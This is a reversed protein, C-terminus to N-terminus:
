HHSCTGSACTVGPCVVLPAGGSQQCTAVAGPQQCLTPIDLHALLCACTYTEACQCAIPTATGSCGIIGGGDTGVPNWMTYAFGEPTFFPGGNNTISAPCSHMTRTLTTCIPPGSDAAGADGADISSAELRVDMGDDAREGADADVGPAADDVSPLADVDEDGGEGVDDSPSLTTFETGGCGCAALAWVWAFSRSM